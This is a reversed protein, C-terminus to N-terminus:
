HTLVAVFTGTFMAPGFPFEQRAGSRSSTTLLAVMAASCLLSILTGALLASWSPWALALGIPGAAVVDGAGLGGRSLMATALYAAFLVAMGACARVFGDGDDDVVAAAGFLALLIPYLPLVLRRPLRMDYWDIVSLPVSVAALASYALLDIRPGSRWAFAGFLAATVVTRGIALHATPPSRSGPGRPRCTAITSWPARTLTAGVMAGLAAWSVVFTANLSM